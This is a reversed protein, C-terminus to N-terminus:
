SARNWTRIQRLALEVIEPTVYLSSVRDLDRVFSEAQPLTIRSDRFARAVVGLSGIPIVSLRRAAERVALDDTLIIPIRLKRCLCFGEIEGAHLGELGHEEVFRTIEVAPLEHRKITGLNLLQDADLRSRGVTESWVERPVHLHGVISLLDLCGIEALHILPGADAVAHNM